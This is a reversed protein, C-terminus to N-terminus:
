AFQSVRVLENSQNLNVRIRDKLEAKKANNWGAVDSLYGTVRSVVVVNHDGCVPCVTEGCVPCYAISSEITHGCGNHDIPCKEVLGATEKCEPCKGDILDEFNLINNCLWCKYRKQEPPILQLYQEYKTRSDDRRPQFAKFHNIITQERKNYEVM